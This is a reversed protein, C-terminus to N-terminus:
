GKGITLQELQYQKGHILDVCGFVLCANNQSLFYKNEVFLFIFVGNLIIRYKCLMSFLKEMEGIDLCSKRIM